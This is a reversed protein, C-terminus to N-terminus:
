GDGALMQGVDRAGHVGRIVDVGTEALRYLILYRGITLSRVGDGIDVRVRGRDPFDRLSLAGAVLRRVHRAAAQPDDRAIL